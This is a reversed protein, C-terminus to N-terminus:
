VGNQLENIRDWVMELEKQIEVIFHEQTSLQMKFYWFQRESDSDKLDSNVYLSKRIGEKRLGEEIEKTIDRLKYPTTNQLYEKNAIQEVTFHERVNAIIESNEEYKKYREEREKFSAELRLRKVEDRKKKANIKKEELMTPYDKFEKM